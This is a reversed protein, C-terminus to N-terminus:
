LKFYADKLDKIIKMAEFYSWQDPDVAKIIHVEGEVYQLVKYNIFKGMHHLSVDFVM